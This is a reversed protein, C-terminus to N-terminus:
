GGDKKIVEFVCSKISGILKQLLDFPLEECNLPQISNAKATYLKRSINEHMRYQILVPTEQQGNYSMLKSQMSFIYFQRQKIFLLMTSVHLDWWPAKKRRWSHSCRGVYWYVVHMLVSMRLPLHCSGVALYQEGCRLVEKTRSGSPIFLIKYVTM